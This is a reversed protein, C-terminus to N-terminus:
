AIQALLPVLAGQDEQPRSSLHYTETAIAQITDLRARAGIGVGFISLGETERLHQLGALTAASPVGTDNPKGDTLLFVDAKGLRADQTLLALARALPKDFDTSGGPANCLAQCVAPTVGEGPEVVTEDHLQDDFNLLAFTRGQAQCLTLLTLAFAAEWAVQASSISGSKDLLVIAPGKTEPTDGQVDYQLAKRGQIKALVGLRALRGGRLGALESPLIRALDGGITVGTIAGVQAVTQAKKQSAVLRELRGAMEAMRQMVRNSQLLTYLERVQELAVLSGEAQQQLPGAGGPMLAELAEEAEDVAEGTL